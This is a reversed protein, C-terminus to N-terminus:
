ADDTEEDDDPNEQTPEEEEGDDQTEDERDVNNDRSTKDRIGAPTEAKAPERGCFMRWDVEKGTKTKINEAVEIADLVEQEVAAVVEERDLNLEKLVHAHTTLCRDIKVGHAQAEKLQDIWPFSPRIWEVVIEDKPAKVGADKLLVPLWWEVMPQYQHDEAGDQGECFTQYAQELIARSQSYNAMSWDLM